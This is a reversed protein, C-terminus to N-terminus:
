GKGSAQATRLASSARNLKQRAAIWAEDTVNKGDRKDKMIADYEAKATSYDASQKPTSIPKPKEPKAAQAKPEAAAVKVETEKGRGGKKSGPQATPTENGSTPGQAPTAQPTTPAAPKGKNFGLVSAMSESDLGSINKIPTKPPDAPADYEKSPDDDRPKVENMSVSTLNGNREVFIKCKKPGKEALMTVGTGKPEMTIISIGLQDEFRKQIIDHMQIRYPVAKEDKGFLAKATEGYPQTYLDVLQGVDDIGGKGEKGNIKENYTEGAIKMRDAPNKGAQFDALGDQLSKFDKNRMAAQFMTWLQAIAGIMETIGMKKFADIANPNAMVEGIKAMAEKSKAEDDSKKEFDTNKEGTLAKEYGAQLDPSIYQKLEGPNKVPNGDVTLTGDPGPKIDHTISLTKFVSAPVLTSLIKDGVKMDGVMKVEADDVKSFKDAGYAEKLAKGLAKQEADSLITAPKEGLEKARAPPLDTIFKSIANSFQPDSEKVGNGGYLKAAIKALNDKAQQRDQSVEVKAPPKAPVKALQEHNDTLYKNVEDITKFSHDGDATLMYSRAKEAEGPVMYLTGAPSSDSKEFTGVLIKAQSADISKEKSFTLDTKKALETEVKPLDAKLQSDVDSKNKEAKGAAEEIKKLQAKLNGPINKAAMPFDRTGDIKVIPDNKPDDPFHISGVKQGKFIIAPDPINLNSELLKSTNKEPTFTITVGEPLPQINDAAQKVASIRENNKKINEKYGSAIKALDLNKFDSATYKNEIKFNPEATQEISVIFPRNETHNITVKIKFNETKNEITEYADLQGTKFDADKSEADVKTYKADTAKKMVAIVDGEAFVVGYSKTAENITNTHSEVAGKQIQKAKIEDVPKKIGENVGMLKTVAEHGEWDDWSDIKGGLAYLNLGDNIENRRLTLWETKQDIQKSYADIATDKFDPNTKLEKIVQAKFEDAEYVKLKDGSLDIAYLVKKNEKDEFHVDFRKALATATKSLYSDPSDVKTGFNALDKDEKGEIIWGKFLKTKEKTPEPNPSEDLFKKVVRPLKDKLQNGIRENFQDVDSFFNALNGKYTDSNLDGEPLQVMEGEVIFRALMAAMEKSMGKTEENQKLYDVIMEQQIKKKVEKGEPSGTKMAEGIEHQRTQYNLYDDKKEVRKQISALLETAKKEFGERVEKFADAHEFPLGETTWKDNYEASIKNFKETTDDKLAQILKDASDSKKVSSAMKEITKIADDRNKKIVISKDEIQQIKSAEDSKKPAEAKKEEVKPAEFWVLRNNRFNRYNERFILM